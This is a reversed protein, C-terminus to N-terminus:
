QVVSFRQRPPLQIPACSRMQVDAPLQAGGQSLFQATEKPNTTLGEIYKGNVVIYGYLPYEGTSQGSITM